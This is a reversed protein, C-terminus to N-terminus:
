VADFYYGLGVALVELGDVLIAPSALGLPLRGECCLRIGSRLSIGSDWRPEGLKYGLGEEIGSSM